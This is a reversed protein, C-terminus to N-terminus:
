IRNLLENKKDKFEEETLMGKDKLRSLNEIKEYISIAPSDDADDKKKKSEGTGKEGPKAPEKPPGKEPYPKMFVASPFAVIFLLAGLLWWAVFSRGKAKAIAAPIFAILMSIAALQLPINKGPLATKGKAPLPNIKKQPASRREPASTLGMEQRVQAKIGAKLEELTQSPSRVASLFYLSVVSITILLCRKIM